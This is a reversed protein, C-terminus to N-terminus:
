PIYPFNERTQIESPILHKLNLRLCALKGYQYKIEFLIQTNMKIKNRSLIKPYKFLITFYYQSLCNTKEM